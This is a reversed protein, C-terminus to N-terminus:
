HLIPYKPSRTGERLHRIHNKDSVLNALIQGTSDLSESYCCQATFNRPTIGSLTCHMSVMAESKGKLGECWGEGRRIRRLM